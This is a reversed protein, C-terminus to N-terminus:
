TGNGRASDTAKGCSYGCSKHILLFDLGTVFVRKTQAEFLSTLELEVRIVDSYDEM